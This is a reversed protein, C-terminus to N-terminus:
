RIAAWALGKWTCIISIVICVFVTFKEQPTLHRTM